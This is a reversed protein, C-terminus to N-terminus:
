IGRVQPFIRFSVIWFFSFIEILLYLYLMYIYIYIYLFNALRNERPVTSLVNFCLLIFLNKGRM